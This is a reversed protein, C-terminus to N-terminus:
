RDISPMECGVLSWRSVCVSISRGMGGVTLDLDLCVSVGEIRLGIKLCVVM